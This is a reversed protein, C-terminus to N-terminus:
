RSVHRNRVIFVQPLWVETEMKQKVWLTEPLWGGFQMSTGKGM